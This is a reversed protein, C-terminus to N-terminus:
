QATSKGEQLAGERMGWLADAQQAGGRQTGGQQQRAGPELQQTEENM